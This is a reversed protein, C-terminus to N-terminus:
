WNTRSWRGHRMLEVISNGITTGRRIHDRLMDGTSIQPIGLWEVVYKSQTGKGSGPSGFMVIAIPSGPM